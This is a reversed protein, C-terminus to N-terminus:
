ADNKNKESALALLGLVGIQAPYGPETKGAIWLQIIRKSIQLLSAAETVGGPLAAVYASLQLQFETQKAPRGKRARKYPTPM